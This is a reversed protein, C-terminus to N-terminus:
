GGARNACDSDSGTVAVVRRDAGRVCVVFPSSDVAEGEGYGLTLVLSPSGGLGLTLITSPPTM